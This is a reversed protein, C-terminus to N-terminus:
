HTMTSTTNWPAPREAVDPSIGCCSVDILFRRTLDFRDCIARGLNRGNDTLTILGYSEQM